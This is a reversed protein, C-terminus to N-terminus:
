SAEEFTFLRDRYYASQKQRAIQEGRLAEELDKAAGLARAAKRQVEMPPLDIEFAKFQQEKWRRRSKMTGRETGTTEAEIRKLSYEDLFYLLLWEPLVRSRDLDYVPFENSVVGGSLDEPILAFSGETVFMRNYILQGPEVRYLTSGKISTGSKPNRALVGEGYWKVGLSTYTLEPEVGVPDVFQASIDGLRVREVGACSGAEHGATVILRRALETRLAKRAEREASLQVQLETFHQLMRGIERQIELPPVPIKIKALNSGSIRALKSETVLQTKQEQFSSSQFFYALYKPDLGHRFIYCDDHVAVDDAGLWAVAKGVQEVNEGTAAIVLDGPHALRLNARLESRVFRRVETTATDYDTYVEGYHISGLGSDVYDAKTFRRGRVLEGADSLAKFEVGSPCMDAILHDIRSM